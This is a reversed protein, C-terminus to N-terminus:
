HCLPSPNTQGGHIRHVRHDVVYTNLQGPLHPARYTVPRTLKAPKGLPGPVHNFDCRTGERCDLNGFLEAEFSEDLPHWEAQHEDHCWPIVRKEGGDVGNHRRKHRAVGDQQFM